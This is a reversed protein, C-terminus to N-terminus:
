EGSGPETRNIPMSFVAAAQLANASSFDDAGLQDNVFAARVSTYEFPDYFIDPHGLVGAPLVSASVRIDITIPDKSFASRLAGAQVFGTMMQRM